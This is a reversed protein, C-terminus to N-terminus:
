DEAWTTPYKATQLASGLALTPLPHNAAPQSALPLRKQAFTSYVSGFRKKGGVRGNKEETASSLRRWHLDKVVVRMRFEGQQLVLLRHLEMGLNHTFHM